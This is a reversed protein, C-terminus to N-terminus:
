VTLLDKLSYKSKVNDARLYPEKTNTLGILYDVSTNYFLALKSLSNVDITIEGTEYRSYTQQTCNLLEAIKTQTLDNDERLDKIRLNM